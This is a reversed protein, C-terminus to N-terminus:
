RRSNKQRREAASSRRRIVPPPLKDRRAGVSSRPPVVSPNAAYPVRYLTAQARPTGVPDNELGHAIPIKTPAPQLYVDRESPLPTARSLHDRSPTTIRVRLAFCLEAMEAGEARASLMADVPSIAGLGPLGRRNRSRGRVRVGGFVVALGDRVTLRTRVQRSRLRLTGIAENGRESEQPLRMWLDLEITASDSGIRVPVIRVRLGLEEPASTVAENPFPRTFLLQPVRRLSDLTAPVGETCVLAPWAVFRANGDKQLARLAYEFASGEVHGEAFALTTGEFPRAGTITSRLYDDPEFGMGIGRFLGQPRTSPDRDFFLSGGSQGRDEHWVECIMLSVTAQRPPIDLTRLADFAAGASASTAASILIRHFAERGPKGEPVKDNVVVRPTTLTVDVNSLAMRKLEEALETAPRFEPQFVMHVRGGSVARPLELHMRSPPVIREDALPPLPSPHELAVAQRAGGFGGLLLVIGCLGNIGLPPQM